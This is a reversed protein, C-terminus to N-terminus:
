ATNPRAGSPVIAALYGVKNHQAVFATVLDQYQSASGNFLKSMRWIRMWDGRRDNLYFGISSYRGSEWDRATTHIALTTALCDHPGSLKTVVQCFHLPTSLNYSYRYERLSDFLERLLQRVATESLSFLALSLGNEAVNYALLDICTSLQRYLPLTSVRARYELLVKLQSIIFLRENNSTFLRHTDRAAVTVSYYGSADNRIVTHM